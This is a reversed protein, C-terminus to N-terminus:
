NGYVTRLAFRPIKGVKYTEKSGDPHTKWEWKDTGRSSIFEVVCRPLEYEKGPYLKAEFDILDNSLKVQCMNEPQDVRGFVIKEKPHLDIPCPKIPYRAIRLKKNMARAERNYRIYDSYSNLPMDDIALKEPVKEMVEEIINKNKAM